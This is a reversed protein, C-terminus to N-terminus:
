RGEASAKAVNMESMGTFNSDVVIKSRMRYKM